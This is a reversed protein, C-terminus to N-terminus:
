KRFHSRQKLTKNKLAKKRLRELQRPSKKVYVDTKKEVYANGLSDRFFHFREDGVLEVRVQRGNKLTVTRWLGRKAPVAALSMSVLIM